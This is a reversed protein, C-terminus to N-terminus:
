ELVVAPARMLQLAVLGMWIAQLGTVFLIGPVNLVLQASLIGLTLFAGVLVGVVGTLRSLHRARVIELSWLLLAIGAAVVSVKAFAQNLYHTYDLLAQDLAATAPDGARLQAIVDSAVFGSMVAATLTAVVSCAYVVLGAVALDTWGLYRTLGILGLIVLPQAALAIGHVFHNVVTLRTGSDATLDHATPHLGLILLPLLIGALLSQGARRYNRM